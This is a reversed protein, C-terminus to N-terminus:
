VREGQRDGQLSYASLTSGASAGNPATAPGVRPGVAEIPSAFAPGRGAHHPGWRADDVKNGM